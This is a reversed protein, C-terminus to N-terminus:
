QSGVGVDGWWAPASLRLWVYSALAASSGLEAVALRRGGYSDVMPGPEPRGGSDQAFGMVDRKHRAPLVGSSVGGWWGPFFPQHIHGSHPM